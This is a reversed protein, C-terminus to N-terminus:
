LGVEEAWQMVRQWARGAANARQSSRPGSGGRAALLVLGVTAAFSPRRVVGSLGGLGQPEGVRTPIEGCMEAALETLGALSATGGTLVLGSALDEVPCVKEIEHRMWSVIEAARPELWSILRERPLLRPKRGGLGSVECTEEEKVMGPHVCGYKIKVREAEAMPAKLERALDSTLHHGGLRAVATHRLVGDKYVALDTTGGGIDALCVGLEREDRTLVAEAAALQQLYLDEVSLDHRGCCRILNETSRTNATVVHFYGEVRCTHIGLASPVAVSQDVFYGQPIAALLREDSGFPIACAVRRVQRLHERRVPGREIRAMGHRNMGRIYGGALGLHVRRITLGSMMEADSVARAISGTAAKVNHVVGQKIGQSVAEGAGIIRVEGDVSEAAVVKTMSSGVDLGIWISSKGAM